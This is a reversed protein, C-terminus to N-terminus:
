VSNVALEILYEAFAMPTIHTEKQNLRPLSRNGTHIGGGIQHTGRPRDLKFPKPPKNGVYYLWTRKTAKHGYASQWVEGVWENQSVQHWGLGSPKTLNFKKWALSKAPHELVGHFRRVNHLGSIFCGGDDGVKTGWRKENIRAMACWSGCPSHVIVPHPGSYLRADREKDWCDIEPLSFYPGHPDVFLAAVKM